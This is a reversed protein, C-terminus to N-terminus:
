QFMMKDEMDISHFKERSKLVRSYRKLLNINQEHM